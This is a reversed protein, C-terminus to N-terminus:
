ARSAEGRGEARSEDGRGPAARSLEGRPRGGDGPRPGAGAIRVALVVAGGAVRGGTAVRSGTAAAVVAADAARADDGRLPAPATRGGDGFGRGGGALQAVTVRVSEAAESAGVTRLPAEDRGCGSASTAFFMRAPSRAAASLSGLAAIPSSM